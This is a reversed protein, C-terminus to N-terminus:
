NCNQPEIGNESAYQAADAEILPRVVDTMAPIWDTFIEWKEGDWRQLPAYGRNFLSPAHRKAVHGDIGPPHPAPHAFGTEAPHCTACSVEGDGSLIGDFFLKKGLEFMAETPEYGVPKPM